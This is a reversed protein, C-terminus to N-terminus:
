TRATLTQKRIDRVGEVKEPNVEGELLGQSIFDILSRRPAQTVAPQTRMRSKTQAGTTIERNWGRM